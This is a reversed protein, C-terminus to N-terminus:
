EDLGQRCIIAHFGMVAQSTILLYMTARSLLADNNTRSSTSGLSGQHMHKRRKNLM